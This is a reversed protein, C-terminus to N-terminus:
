DVSPLVAVRRGLDWVEIAVGDVHQKAKAIAADDNECIVVVPPGDVHGEKDIRYLRYETM